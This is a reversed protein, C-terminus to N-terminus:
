DCGSLVLSSFPFVSFNLVVIVLFTMTLLFFLLYELMHAGDGHCGLIPQLTQTQFTFIGTIRLLLTFWCRWICVPKPGDHAFCCSCGLTVRENSHATNAPIWSAYRIDEHRWQPLQSRSIWLKVSSKINDLHWQISARPTLLTWFRQHDARGHPPNFVASSCSLDSPLFWSCRSTANDAKLLRSQASLAFYIYHFGWFSM